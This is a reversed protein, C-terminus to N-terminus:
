QADRPSRQRGVASGLGHRSSRPPRAGPDEPRPWRADIAAGTEAGLRPVVFGRVGAAAADEFADEVGQHGVMLVAVDPMDGGSAVGPVCPLGLVDTHDPHAGWALLEAALANRSVAPNRAPPGM